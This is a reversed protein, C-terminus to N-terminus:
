EAPIIKTLNVFLDLKRRNKKKIKMAQPHTYFIDKGFIM